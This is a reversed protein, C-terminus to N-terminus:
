SSQRRNSDSINLWTSGKAREEERVGDKNQTIWLIKNTVKKRGRM